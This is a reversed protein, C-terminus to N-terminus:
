SIYRTSTHYKLYSYTYSEVTNDEGTVANWVPIVTEMPFGGRTSYNCLGLCDNVLEKNATIATARAVEDSDHPSPM